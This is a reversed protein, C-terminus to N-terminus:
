PQHRCFCMGKKKKMRDAANLIISDPPMILPRTIMLDDIKHSYPFPDIRSLARFSAYPQQIAAVDIWGANTGANRQDDLAATAKQLDGYTSISHSKLENLLAQFLKGTMIADGIATHRHTLPIDFHQALTELTGMMMIADRGLAITAMQRVCLAPPIDWAIGHRDTEAAIIALDFGINYGIVVRDTITDRLGPFVHSFGQKDSVMEDSIGHIDISKPPIPIGPNVLM